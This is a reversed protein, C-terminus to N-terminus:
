YIFISFLLLYFLCGTVFTWTFCGMYQHQILHQTYIVGSCCLLISFISVTSCVKSKEKPKLFICLDVNYFAVVRKVFEDRYYM